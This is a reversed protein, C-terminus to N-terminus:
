ALKLRAFAEPLVPAGDIWRRGIIGIQNTEAYLENLRQLYTLNFQVIWYYSFDGYMGVYSGSTFVAPVYDSTVFPRDLIVDPSGTLVSPQWVYHGNGDKIQRLARVAARNFLWKANPWYEERVTDQANMLGDFTLATASGAVADRSTPIGFDSAAFLGLPQHAGHGNFYHNEEARAFKHALRENAISEIPVTSSQLLTIPLLMRKALQHPRLERRGFKLDDTVSPRALEATWEADGVDDDLTPAFFGALTNVTIVTALERMIVKRKLNELLQATFEQPTLVAATDAGFASMDRYEPLSRIFTHDEQTLGPLGQRLYRQFIEMHRKEASQSEGGSAASGAQRNASGSSSGSASRMELEVRAIREEREVQDGLRDVEDMIRTYEADQESTMQRNENEAEAKDLIARADKVLKARNEKLERIKDM